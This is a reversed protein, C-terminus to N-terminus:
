RSQWINHEALSLYRMAISMNSWGGARMIAGIDHGDALLDQAAGVRLSHGSIEAERPRAGRTRVVARKVIEGVTRGCVSRDLCTGHNVACFLWPIDRPKRRLWRRLLKASRESGFVLRGRGYPDTKSRRIVGRLGGRADFQVDDCKLATLESRRALFDYGISLLARNRIGVLDDPQAAIARLLLDRNIGRAQRTRIPKARKIRRIALRYPEAQPIDPHGLLGNVRRISSARRRLTTFAHRHEICELYHILTAEGLPFPTMGARLCWDVFQSADSHYSRITNPAYAGELKRLAAEISDTFYSM